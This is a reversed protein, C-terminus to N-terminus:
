HDDLLNPQVRPAEMDASNGDPIWGHRGRSALNRSDELVDCGGALVQSRSSFSSPLPHTAMRSPLADHEKAGGNAFARNGDVAARQLAHASWGFSDEPSAYDQIPVIASSQPCDCACDHVRACPEECRHGCQMQRNCTEMCSVM